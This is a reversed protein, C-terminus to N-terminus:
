DRTEPPVILHKDSVAIAVAQQRTDEFGKLTAPRLRGLKVFEKYAKAVGPFDIDDLIVLGNLPSIRLVNSIDTRVPSEDHDGDIHFVDFSRDTHHTALRPLIERSDGKFMTFRDKFAQAMYKACPITYTTQCIDVGTYMLDPQSMLALLASHGANFGVELLSRRGSLAAAYFARKERYEDIPDADVPYETAHLYFLNGICRFTKGPTGHTQLIIRNLAGLHAVLETDFEPGQVEM